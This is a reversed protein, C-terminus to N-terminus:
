VVVDLRVVVAEPRMDASKMVPNLSRRFRGFLERVNHGGGALSPEEHEIKYLKKPSGPLPKDRQVFLHKVRSEDVVDEQIGKCATFLLFALFVVAKRVGM